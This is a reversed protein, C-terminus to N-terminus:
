SQKNTPRIKHAYCASTLPHPGGTRVAVYVRNVVDRHEPHGSPPRQNENPRHYGGNASFPSATIPISPWSIQPVCGTDGHMVPTQSQGGRRNLGVSPSPNM